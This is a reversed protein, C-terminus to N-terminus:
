NNQIINLEKQDEEFIEKYLNVKDQFDQLIDIDMQVVEQDICSKLDVQLILKYAECCKITQGMRHLLLELFELRQKTSM